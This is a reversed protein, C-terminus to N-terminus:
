NFFLVSVVKGKKVWQVAPQTPGLATRSTITFLGRRCSRDDLGYGLAIGVSIIITIVVVIIIFVIVVAFVGGLYM